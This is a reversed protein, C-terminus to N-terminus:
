IVSIFVFSSHSGTTYNPDTISLFNLYFSCIPNAHLLNKSELSSFINNKNFKKIKFYHRCAHMHM